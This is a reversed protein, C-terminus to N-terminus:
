PEMPRASNRRYRSVQRDNRLSGRHGFDKRALKNLRDIAEEARVPFLEIPADDRMDVTGLNM